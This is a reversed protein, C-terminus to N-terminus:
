ADALAAEIARVTEADDIRGLAERLASVSPEPLLRVLDLNADVADEAAAARIVAELLDADGLIELHAFRGLTDRDLNEVLGILGTWLQHEWATRAIATLTEDDLEAAAAAIRGHQAPSVTAVLDLAEIWLDGDAVAHILARLRDDPLRGVIADIRSPDVVYRAIRVLAAHDGVGQVIRTALEADVHGVFAALTLYEQREILGHAIRDVVTTPLTDALHAASDPESAAAIDVMFPVSLHKAVKGAFRGDVAGLTAACLVPGFHREAISGVLPPPLKTAAAVVGRLRKAEVASLHRRIAGAVTRLTEVDGLDPLADVDCTLTRALKDREADLAASRGSM